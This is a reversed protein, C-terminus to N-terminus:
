QGGFNPQYASNLGNMAPNLKKRGADVSATLDDRNDPAGYGMMPGSRQGTATPFAGGMQMPQGRFANSGSPSPGGAVKDVHQEDMAQFLGDWKPDPLPGFTPHNWDTTLHQQQRSAAARQQLAIGLSDDGPVNGFQPM